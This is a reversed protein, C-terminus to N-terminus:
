NRAENHMLLSQGEVHLGSTRSPKIRAKRAECATRTKACINKYCGAHSVENDEAAVNEEGNSRGKPKSLYQQGFRRIAM